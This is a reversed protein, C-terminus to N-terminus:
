SNCHAHTRSHKGQKYKTPARGDGAADRAADHNQLLVVLGRRVQAIGHHVQFAGGGGRGRGRRDGHIDRDRVLDVGRMDDHDRNSRGHSEGVVIGELVVDKRHALRVGEIEPQVAAALGLALGELV